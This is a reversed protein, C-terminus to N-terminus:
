ATLRLAHAEAALRDRHAPHAISILASARERLCKGRLQVAGWETVVWDVHARTTVVGAGPALTTVIRSCTGGAATSALAIIGRGNEALAAGRLFDMQGGVGSFLRHGISDACVQGTLDIEIASNVAVMNEFRRILAVSNTYDSTRMEVVPNDDVFDYLRKTGMLFSAVARGADVEKKAGTVVGREILDVVGDTFMESHVGLDRHSTLAATVASPVGGIGLQITAGNPVLAAVHAGIRREVDGITPAELEHLPEDVEVALDIRSAHIFSSGSTRPVRPNVQAIVSGAARVAAQVIDVSTGLSCLGSADPPSVHILAVDLPITGRAFLSPMESLFAPLYDARGEAVAARANPGIFLALHRLHGELESALHPAPGELHLHVARVGVLDRARRALAAVLQSPAACAGQIFVSQNSEVRALADDATVRKM